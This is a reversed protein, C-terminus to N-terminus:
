EALIKARATALEDDSILGGAHLESLETLRGEKTSAAGAKLSNEGATMVPESREGSVQPGNSTTTPPNAALEELQVALLADSAGSMRKARAFITAIWIILAVIIAIVVVIFVIDSTGM